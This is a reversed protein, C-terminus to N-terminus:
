STSNQPEGVMGRSEKKLPSFSVNLYAFVLNIPLFFLSTWNENTQALALSRTESCQTEELSCLENLPYAVQSISEWFSISPIIIFNKIQLNVVKSHVHVVIVQIDTFHRDVFWQSLTVQLNAVHDCYQM